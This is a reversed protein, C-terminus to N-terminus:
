IHHSNLLRSSQYMDFCGSAWLQKSYMIGFSKTSHLYYTGANNATFLEDWPMFTMFIGSSSVDITMKEQTTIAYANGTFVDGFKMEGFVGVYKNNDGDVVFEWFNAEFDIGDWCFRNRSHVKFM